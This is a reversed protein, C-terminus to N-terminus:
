ARWSWMMVPLGTPLMTLCVDGSCRSVASPADHAMWAAIMAAITATPSFKLEDRATETSIASSTGASGWAGGGGFCGSGGGFGGFSCIGLSSFNGFGTSVGGGTSVGTFDSGGGFTSAGAGISVGFDSATIEVGAAGGAGAAGAAAAPSGRPGEVVNADVLSKPVPGSVGTRVVPGAAAAVGDGPVVAIAIGFPM